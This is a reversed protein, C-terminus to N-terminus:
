KKFMSWAVLGAAALGAFYIFSDCIGPIAPFLSQTCGAVPIGSAVTSASCLGWCTSNFFNGWSDCDIAQGNTSDGSCDIRMDVGLGRLGKLGSTPLGLMM